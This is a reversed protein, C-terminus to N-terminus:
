SARGTWARYRATGRVRDCALCISKFPDRGSAVKGRTSFAGVPLTEFCSNCRKHTMESVVSIRRSAVKRGHEDVVDLITGLPRGALKRPGVWHRSCYSRQTLTTCDPVMCPPWDCDDWRDRKAHCSRCVPQYRDLDESFPFLRGNRYEVQEDPCQHDYSWDQAQKSCLVCTWASAPGRIRGLRNHVSVYRIGEMTSLRCKKKGFFRVSM